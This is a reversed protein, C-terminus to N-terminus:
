ALGSRIANAVEDFADFTQPNVRAMNLFGHIQGDYCVYRCPTGAADLANAYAKGEDRLPDYGATLVLAPPLRSLDRAHVPAARWDSQDEPNALYLDRFWAMTTTKVPPKDGNEAYSRRTLDFDTVPYILAQFAIKPGGNDRADIAAVAAINGGASDGAVALRGPDVGLESANESVWRTAAVADEIAAPFVHEPALRYDVAILTAGSRAALERCVTDHSDLDGIVWGGGHFYVIVPQASDRGAPRNRYLRLAIAGAPGSMELDRVEDIEIPDPQLAKRSSVYAERCEPVSMEEFSPRGAEKILDLVAQAGPNLTM